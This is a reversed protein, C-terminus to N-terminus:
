GAARARAEALEADSLVVPAGDAEVLFLREHHPWYLGLADEGLKWPSRHRLVVKDKVLHGPAVEAILSYTVNGHQDQSLEAIQVRVEQGERAADREWFADRGARGAAYFLFGGCLAILVVLVAWAARSVTLDVSWSCAAQEPHAPDYRVEAPANQDVEGFITTFEQKGTHLNGAEDVYSLDLKYDHFVFRSTRVEGGVRGDIAPTGRAFVDRDRQLSGIQTSAYWGMGALMLVGLFALFLSTLLKKVLRGASTARPAPPLIPV